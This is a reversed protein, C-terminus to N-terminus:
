SPLGHRCRGSGAARRRARRVKSNKIKKRAGLRLTRARSSEPSRSCFRIQHAAACIEQRLSRCPRAVRRRPHRWSLIWRSLSLPPATKRKEAAALIPLENEAGGGARDLRRRFLFGPCTPPPPSSNSPRATRRAAVCARKGTRSLIRAFAKSAAP